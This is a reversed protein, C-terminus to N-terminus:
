RDARWATKLPVWEAGPNVVRKEHSASSACIAPQSGSYAEQM